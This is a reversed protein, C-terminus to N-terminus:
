RMCCQQLGYMLSGLSKISNQTQLNSAYHNCVEAIGAQRHPDQGHVQQRQQSHDETQHAGRAVRLVVSAPRSPRDPYVAPTLLSVTHPPHCLRLETCPMLAEVSATKGIVCRSVTVFTPQQRPLPAHSCLSRNSQLMMQQAMSNFSIPHPASAVHTSAVNVPQLMGGPRHVNHFHESSGSCLHCITVIRMFDM